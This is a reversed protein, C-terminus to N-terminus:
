RKTRRQEDLVVQVFEETLESIMNVIITIDERSADPYHIGCSAVVTCSLKKALRTAVKRALDAEKHGPIALMQETCTFHEPDHLSPSMVSMAVGGIHPKVGGSIIVNLDRGVRVGEIKLPYSKYIKEVRM